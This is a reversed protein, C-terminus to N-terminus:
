KVIMILEYVQNGCSPCQVATTTNYRDETGYNFFQGCKSCYFDYGSDLIKMLEFGSM